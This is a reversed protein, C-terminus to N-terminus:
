FSINDIGQFTSSFKNYIDISVTDGIEDTNTEENHHISGRMGYVYVQTKINAVQYTKYFVIVTIASLVFYTLVKLWSSSLVKKDESEMNNKIFGLAILAAIINNIM